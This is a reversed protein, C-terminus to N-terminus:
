LESHESHERHEPRTQASLDHAAGAGEEWGWKAPYMTPAFPPRPLFRSTGPECTVPGGDSYLLRGRSITHAVRGAAELGEYLNTDSAGSRPGVTTRGRPDFVLLDADSGPAVLGKRPYLNFAQAAATSTARVYESPTARGSAVLEHWALVMREGIGNVGNPILRFDDRGAAKQTSNFSCHDTGLPGLVGSVLGGLLAAGDVARRRIPPSMVAAAARTFNADWMAAEDLVIGALVPEGVVRQGAARARAVEAVAGACTVHVVYLPAGALGALRIARGTAEEEVAAPRSLAHGQPGRVGAAYTAARGAEVADGNEAHVMALAGLEASRALGALLQEDSVMLAHKYAMFFKFSSVGRAVLTAMDSATKDSWSTVAAHLAYDLCGRRAKEMWAANGALLDHEVPLAFDLHSTTGGALAAAHGSHWDDVTTAGMFPMALHTHPDVGGPMVLLGTCDLVRAGPPAVLSPGVATVLEGEVLVDAAHARDANVVTGGRLLLVEARACALLTAALLLSRPASRARPEGM